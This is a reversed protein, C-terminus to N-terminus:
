SMLPVTLFLLFFCQSKLSCVAFLLVNWRCKSRESWFPLIDNLLGTHLKSHPPCHAEKISGHNWILRSWCSNRGLAKGCVNCSDKRMLSMKLASLYLQFTVDTIKGFLHSGSKKSGERSSLLTRPARAPHVPGWRREQHGCEPPLGRWFWSIAAVFEFHRKLYKSM